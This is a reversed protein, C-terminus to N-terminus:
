NLRDRYLCSQPKMTRPMYRGSQLPLWEEHRRKTLNHCVIRNVLPYAFRRFKFSQFALVQENKCAPQKANENHKHHHIHRTDALPYADAKACASCGYQYPHGKREVDFVALVAEHFKPGAVAMGFVNDVAPGM